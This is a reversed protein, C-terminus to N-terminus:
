LKNLFVQTIFKSSFLHQFKYQTQLWIVYFTFIRWMKCFLSARQFNVGIQYNRFEFIYQCWAWNCLIKLVMKFHLLFNVNTKMANSVMCARILTSSGQCKKLETINQCEHEWWPGEDMRALVVSSMTLETWVNIGQFMVMKRTNWIRVSINM